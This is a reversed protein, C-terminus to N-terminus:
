FCYSEMVKRYDEYLLRFEEDEIIQEELYLLVMNRVEKLSGM